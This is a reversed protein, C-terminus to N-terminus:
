ATVGKVRAKYTAWPEIEDWKGIGISIGVAEVSARSDPDAVSVPAQTAKESAVWKVWKPMTRKEPPYHALFGQYVTEPDLEPRTKLAERFKQKAQTHAHTDGVCVILSDPILSDPTLFGSDSPSRRKQKASKSGVNFRTKLSAPNNASKHFGKEEGSLKNGKATNCSYCLVQLNDFDSSGGRSVPIIHDVCLHETAGCSQCEHGDRELVQARKSRTLATAKIIDEHGKPPPIESAKEKYHPDQHKVFNTVQIYKAGAAEYRVIFNKSQLLALMPDVDFSDFPFLEAKIRRPRDEMRGERDALTWLGIFLLRVDPSLEALDENKFFGPKINRARAM